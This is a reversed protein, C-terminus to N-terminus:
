EDWGLKCTSLAKKTLCFKSIVKRFAIYRVILSKVEQWLHCAIFENALATSIEFIVMKRWTCVVPFERPQSINQLSIHSGGSGLSFLNFGSHISPSSVEVERYNGSCSYGQM